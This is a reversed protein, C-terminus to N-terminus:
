NPASQGGSDFATEVQGDSACRLWLLDTELERCTVTSPIPIRNRGPKPLSSSRTGPAIVRLRRCEKLGHTPAARTRLCRRLNARSITRELQDLLKKACAESASASNQLIRAPGEAASRNTGCIPEEALVQPIRHASRLGSGHPPNPMRARPTLLDQSDRFSSRRSTRAVFGSRTRQHGSLARRLVGWLITAPTCSLM